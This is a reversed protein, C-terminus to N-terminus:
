RTAELSEAPTDAQSRDTRLSPDVVVHPTIPAKGQNMDRLAQGVGELPVYHTPIRELGTARSDLLAIAKRVAQPSRGRVGRVTLLNRVIATPDLATDGGNLGAIVLVGFRGLLGVATTMTDPTGITDIVADLPGYTAHIREVVTEDNLETDAGLEAALALRGASSPRGLAIVQEAGGAIAAAVCSLGHYGPGVVAVKKGPGVGGAELTWDVANALPLTWAAEEVSLHEPLPHLVHHSSLEMYEANGGHLGTGRDAPIM